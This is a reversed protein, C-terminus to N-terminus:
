GGFNARAFFADTLATKSSLAVSLLDLAEAEGIGLEAMKVPECFEKRLLVAGTLSLPTVVLEDSIMYMLEKCYSGYSSESQGPHGKCDILEQQQAEGGKLHEICVYSTASLKCCSSCAYYVDQQEEEVGIVQDKCNFYPALKPNLLREECGAVVYGSSALREASGYLNNLCGIPFRSGLHKKLTGLPFTLFSFIVDVLDQSSVAYLVKNRTLALKIRYIKKEKDFVKIAGTKGIPPVSLKPATDEGNQLLVDTLPTDSILSRKLIDLVQARDIKVLREEMNSWDGYGWDDSSMADEISAISLADTVAFKDGKVFVGQLEEYNVYYQKLDHSIAKHMGGGCVCKASSYYSFKRNACSEYICAYLEGMEDINIRLKQCKLGSSNVPNTLMSKCTATVLYKMDLQDVGQYLKDFCGLSSQKNLLHVVTGVPLTLFSLLADVFDLDSEVFAVCNKTKNVFVTLTIQQEDTAM